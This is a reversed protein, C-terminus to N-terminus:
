RSVLLNLKEHVRQLRRDCDGENTEYKPFYRSVINGVCSAIHVLPGEKGLNVYAVSAVMSVVYSIGLSLGSAM